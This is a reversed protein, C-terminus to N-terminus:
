PGVQELRIIIPKPIPKAIPMADPAINPPNVARLHLWDSQCLLQKKFYVFCRRCACSDMLGSPWFFTELGGNRLGLRVVVVCCSM